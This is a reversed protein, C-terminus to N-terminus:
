AAPIFAPNATIEVPFRSEADLLLAKQLGADRGRGALWVRVKDHGYGPGPLGGKGREAGAGGAPVDEGVVTADDADGGAVMAEDDGVVTAGDDSDGVVVGADGTVADAAEAGEDAAGPVRVAGPRAVGGSALAPNPTEM